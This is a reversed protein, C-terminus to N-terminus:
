VLEDPENAALWEAIDSLRYYIHRKDRKLTNGRISNPDQGKARLAELQAKTMGMVTAAQFTNVIVREPATTEPEAEIEEAFMWLMHGGGQGIFTAETQDRGQAKVQTETLVTFGLERLQATYAVRQGDSWSFADSTGNLVNVLKTYLGIRQRLKTMIKKQTEYSM